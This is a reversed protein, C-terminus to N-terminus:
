RGALQGGGLGPGPLSALGAGACGPVGEHSLARLPRLPACGFGPRASCHPSDPPARALVYAQWCGGSGGGVSGPSGAFQLLSGSGSDLVPHGPLHEGPLSRLPRSPHTVAAGGRGPAPVSLRCGTVQGQLSCFAHSLTPLPRLTGRSSQTQRRPLTLNGGWLPCALRHPPSCGLACGRQM